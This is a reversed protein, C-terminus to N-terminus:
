RKKVVKKREKAARKTSTASKKKARTEETDKKKAHSKNASSSGGKKAARRAAAAAKKAEATAALVKAARKLKPNRGLAPIPGGASVWFLREAFAPRHKDFYKQQWYRDARPDYNSPKHHSDIWRSRYHEFIDMVHAAYATAIGRDGRIILMNEDNNYSARYGLNHSGTIVVCNESFPDVVITKDHIIAHGYKYIEKRWAKFNRFIGRPSSIMANETDSAELAKRDFEDALDPDSVAGRVFLFPKAAAVRGLEQLFHASNLSGAKGPMFALFLVSQQANALCKYVEGMDVPLPGVTKAQSKPSNPSFCVTVRSGPNLPLEPRQERSKSRLTEGQLGKVPGAVNPIGAEETDNKLDHWYDMYQQALPRSKIVIANNAQTCLGTATWNTSGTLVSEPEGDGNVYVLFKNHGIHGAPMYRRIIESKHDHRGSMAAAIKASAPQNKGDYQNSSPDDSESGDDLSGNNNSLILHLEKCTCLRDILVPDTLEYLSVWCSGGEQDARDLLKVLAAFLQGSLSKRLSSDPDRIMETIKNFDPKQQSPNWIKDSVSQSGLIGRNFYVEVNEGQKPTVNVWDSTVSPTVGPLPQRPGQMPVVRYKYRHGRSELVDRWNYKRIPQAECNVKVRNGAADRDFVPLPDGEENGDETIRYVAFGACDPLLEGFDWAVHVYDNNAVAFVTGKPM